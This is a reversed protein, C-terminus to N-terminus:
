ESIEWTEALDPLVAGEPGLRTLGSFVLSALDRDADNLPAFLPDVRFPAGMVAEVYRHPAPEDDEALSGSFAFWAAAVAVIGVALVAILPWGASSRLGGDSPPTTVRRSSM